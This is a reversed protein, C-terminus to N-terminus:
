PCSDPVPTCADDLNDYVQYSTPETTLHDILECAECDPLAGNGSIRLDGDLSTVASLGDLNTLVENNTIELSEGVAILASLGDLSTLADNYDIELRGVSTLSSLGDLCTISNNDVIGFGEGVSNLSSLGNLITPSDLHGIKFSGGVTTLASLGDLSTLIEGHHIYVTDGVSTLCELGSLDTSPVWTIELNGAVATYGSLQALEDTDDVWADGAWVGNGCSTTESDTDTDADADSDVDAGTDDPGDLSLETSRWCASSLFALVSVSLCAATKWKWM